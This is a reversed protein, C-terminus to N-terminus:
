VDYLGILYGAGAVVRIRGPLLPRTGPDPVQCFERGTGGRFIICIKCVDNIVSVSLAVVICRDITYPWLVLFYLSYFVLWFNRTINLLSPLGVFM